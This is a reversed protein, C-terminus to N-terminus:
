RERSEVVGRSRAKEVRRDSRRGNFRTQLRHDVTQLACGSRVGLWGKWRTAGDPQRRIAEQTRAPERKVM